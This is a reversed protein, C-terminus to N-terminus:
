DLNGNNLLVGKKMQELIHINESVFAFSCTYMSLSFFKKFFTEIRESIIFLLELEKNMAVVVTKTLKHSRKEGVRFELNWTMFIAHLQIVMTLLVPEIGNRVVM